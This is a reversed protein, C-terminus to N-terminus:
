HEPHPLTLCWAKVGPSLMAATDSSLLFRVVSKRQLIEHVDRASLLEGASRNLVM